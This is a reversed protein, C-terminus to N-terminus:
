SPFMVSVFSFQINDPDHTMTVYLICYLLMFGPSILILRFFLILGVLYM